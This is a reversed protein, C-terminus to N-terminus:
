TKGKKRYAKLFRDKLVYFFGDVAVGAAISIFVAPFACFNAAIFGGLMIRVWSLAPSECRRPHLGHHRQCQCSRHCRRPCKEPLFVQQRQVDRVCAGPQRLHLADPQQGM